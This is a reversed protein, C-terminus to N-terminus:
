HIYVTIDGTRCITIKDVILNNVDVGDKLKIDDPDEGEDYSFTKDKVEICLVKIMEIVDYITEPCTSENDTDVFIVTPNSFPYDVYIGIREECKDRPPLPIEATEEPINMLNINLGESDDKPKSIDISMLTYKPDLSGLIAFYDSWTIRFVDITSEEEM